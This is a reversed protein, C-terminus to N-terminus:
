IKDLALFRNPENCFIDEGLINVLRNPNLNCIEAYVGLSMEIWRQRLDCLLDMDKAENFVYNEHSCGGNCISNCWCNICKKNETIYVERKDRKKFSEDVLINGLVMNTNGVFRHCAYVNGYVDVAISNESVGCYHSRRLKPYIQTLWMSIFSPTTCRINNVVKYVYDESILNSTKIIEKYENDSLKISSDDTSALSIILLELDYKEIQNYIDKIDTNNKTITSRVVLNEKLKFFYEYVNQNILEFSEKGGKFPRNKNQQIDSGDISLAIGIKNKELIDFIKKNMITGNTTLSYQIKDHIKLRKAEEIVFEILDISLLPEGGFLSININKDFSNDKLFELTKTAVEKDMCKSHRGDNEYCYVCNLNCNETLFLTAGNYIDNNLTNNSSINMINKDFLNYLKLKDYAEKIKEIRNTEYGDDILEKINIKNYENHQEFVKYSLNNLSIIISAKSIYAYKRNNFQFLHVKNEMM